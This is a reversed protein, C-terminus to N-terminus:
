MDSKESEAKERMEKRIAPYIREISRMLSNKGNKDPKCKYPPAIGEANCKLEIAIAIAAVSMGSDQGVINRITAELASHKEEASKQRALTGKERKEKWLLKSNRDQEEISKKLALLDAAEAKHKEVEIVHKGEQERMESDMSHLGDLYEKKMCEDLDLRAKELAELEDVGFLYILLRSLIERKPQSKLWNINETNNELWKKLKATKANEASSFSSHIELTDKIIDDIRM